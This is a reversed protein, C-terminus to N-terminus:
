AKAPVRDLGVVTAFHQGFRGSAFGFKVIADSMVPIAELARYLEVPIRLIRTGAGDHLTLTYEQGVEGTKQNTFKKAEVGLFKVQM